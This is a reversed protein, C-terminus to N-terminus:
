SLILEGKLGNVHLCGGSYSSRGYTSCRSDMFVGLRFKRKNCYALFTEQEMKKINEQRTKISFM